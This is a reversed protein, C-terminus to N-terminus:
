EPAAPAAEAEEAERILGLLQALKQQYIIGAEPTV